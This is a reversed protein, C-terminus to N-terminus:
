QHLTILNDLEAFFSGIQRQEELSPVSTELNSFETKNVIQMTAAAASKKM